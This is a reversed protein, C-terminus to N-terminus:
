RQDIIKNVKELVQPIVQSQAVLPRIIAAESISFFNFVQRDDPARHNHRNSAEHHPIWQGRRAKEGAFKDRGGLSGM